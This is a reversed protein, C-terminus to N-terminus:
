SRSEELKLRGDEMKWSGVEHKWSGAELKWRRGVAVGSGQLPFGGCSGVELRGDDTM